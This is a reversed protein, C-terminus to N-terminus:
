AVALERPLHKILFDKIKPQKSAIKNLVTVKCPGLIEIGLLEGSEGYDAFANGEAFEVTRAVRGNRVRFYAALLKGTSKDTEVRMQFSFREM